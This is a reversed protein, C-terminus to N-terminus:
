AARAEARGRYGRTRVHEAIAARANRRLASRAGHLMWLRLLGSFFM